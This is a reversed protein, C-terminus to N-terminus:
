RLRHFLSKLFVNQLFPNKANTIYDEVKFCLVITIILLEIPFIIMLKKFLMSVFQIVCIEVVNNSYQQYISKIFVALYFWLFLYLIIVYIIKCTSKIFILHNNFFSIRMFDSNRFPFIFTRPSITIIM